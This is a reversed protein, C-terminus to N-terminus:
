KQDDLGEVISRLTNAAHKMLVISRPSFEKQDIESKKCDLYTLELEQCLYDLIDTLITVQRKESNMGEEMIM